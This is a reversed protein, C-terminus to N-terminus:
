KLLTKNKKYIYKYINFISIILIKHNNQYLVFNVYLPVKNDYAWIIEHGNDINICKRKSRVSPYQWCLCVSLCIIVSSIFVLVGTKFTKVYMIVLIVAGGILSTTISTIIDTKVNIFVMIRYIALSLHYM